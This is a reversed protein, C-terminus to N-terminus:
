NKKNKSRTPTEMILALWVAFWAFGYAFALTLLDPARLAGILWLFWLLGAAIVTATAQAPYKEYM